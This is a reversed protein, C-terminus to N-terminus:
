KHFIDNSLTIKPSVAILNNVIHIGVAFVFHYKITVCCLIVAFSFINILSLITKINVSSFGDIHLLSFIISTTIILLLENEKVLFFLIGLVIFASIALIINGTLLIYVSIFLLSIISAYKKKIGWFRFALEEIIPILVSVIILTVISSTYDILKDIVSLLLDQNQQYNFIQCLVLLVYSGVYLGIGIKLLLTIDIKLRKSCSAM